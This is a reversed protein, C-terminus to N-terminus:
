GNGRLRYLRKAPYKGGIIALESTLQGFEELRHLARYMKGSACNDHNGFMFEDLTYASFETVGLDRMVSANVLIAIEFPVLQGHKRRM